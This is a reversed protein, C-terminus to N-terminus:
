EVMDDDLWWDLHHQTIIATVPATDQGRFSVGEPLQVEGEWDGQNYLRIAEMCPEVMERPVPPYHNHQLHMVIQQELKIDFVGQALDHALQNGM